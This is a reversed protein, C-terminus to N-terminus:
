ERSGGGESEQKPCGAAIWSEITDLDWRRLVGIRVGPPLTGDALRRRVTQESVGLLSAVDGVGGLRRGGVRGSEKRGTSM